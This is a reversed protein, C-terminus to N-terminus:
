TNSGGGCPGRRPDPPQERIVLGSWAGPPARHVLECCLNVLPSGRHGWRRRDRRDRSRWARRRRLQRRVRATASARPADHHDEGAGEEEAPQGRPSRACGSSASVCPRRPPAQRADLGHRRPSRWRGIARAGRCCTAARLPRGRGGIWRSRSATTRRGRRCPGRPRSARRSRCARRRDAARGPGRALEVWASAPRLWALALAWSRWPCGAASGAARARQGRTGALSRRLLLRLGLDVLRADGDGGGVM